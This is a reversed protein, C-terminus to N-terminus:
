SGSGVYEPYRRSLEDIVANIEYQAVPNDAHRGSRLNETLVSHLLAIMGRKREGPIKDVWLCNVDLSDEIVLREVPDTVRELMDTMVVEFTPSKMFAEGVEFAFMASM